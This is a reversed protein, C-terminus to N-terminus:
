NRRFHANYEDMVRKMGGSNNNTALHDLIQYTMDAQFRLSEKIDGIADDLKDLRKKDNDLLQLMKEDHKEREEREKKEKEEKEKLPKRVINYATVIATIATAIAVIQSLSFTIEM